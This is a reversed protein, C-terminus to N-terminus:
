AAISSATSSRHDIAAGNPEFPFKSAKRRFNLSSSARLEGEERVVPTMRGQATVLERANEPMAVSASVKLDCPTIERARFAFIFQDCITVLEWFV